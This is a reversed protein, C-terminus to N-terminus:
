EKLEVIPAGSGGEHQSAPYFKEVHPNSKLLDQVARRLIGMGHGHVIRVRASTAMVAADLFREVRDIAEEAHEGIVNIEQVMPNLAPGAQFRVNKPLKSTAPTNSEPLVEEIDGATIQVKMFGAEVEFRGNGLDRRVRAIDRIGKVRVRAGEEIKLRKPAEPTQSPQISEWDERMERRVKSTQRQAEDVAKRRDATEAIKALTEDARDRWRREMEDFRGELERLKAAERRESDIASQRERAAIALRERELEDKLKASEELRAHLDAILESLEAEHTSLSARARKLIDEPMGLREAIAIGASKGPLGVRL